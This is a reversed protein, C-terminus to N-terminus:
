TTPAATVEGHAAHRAVRGRLLGYIPAHPLSSPSAEQHRPSSWSGRRRRSCRAPRPISSRRLFHDERNCATRPRWANRAVGPGIVESLGLHRDRGHAFAGRNGGAHRQGPDAGFIGFRLSTARSRARKTSGTGPQRAYLEAHGHHRRAPLRDAAASASTMGGSMPVRYLRPRAGYHAGLWRFLGYGYAVHVMMRPARRGACRAPWSTPGCTSMPGPTAWWSPSAPTGSSGHCARWREAAGRVHRIPLQRASGTQHSPFKALDPLERFDSPHVGGGRVEPPLAPCERLRPAAVLRAAGRCRNIRDRTTRETVM